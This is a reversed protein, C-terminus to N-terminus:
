IGQQDIFLLPGSDFIAKEGRHLCICLSIQMRAKASAVELILSAIKPNIPNIIQTKLVQDPENQHYKQPWFGLYGVWVFM